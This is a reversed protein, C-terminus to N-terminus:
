KLNKSLKTDKSALLEGLKMAELEGIIHFFRNPIIIQKIEPCFDIKFFPDSPPRSCSEFNKTFLNFLRHLDISKLPISTRILVITLFLM